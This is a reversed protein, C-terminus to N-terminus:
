KSEPDFHHSPRNGTRAHRFKAARYNRGNARFSRTDAKGGRHEPNRAPVVVRGGYRKVCRSRRQRSAPVRNGIDGGTESIATRIKAFAGEALWPLNAAARRLRSMPAWLIALLLLESLVLGITGLFINRRLANRIEAMADSIDAVTALYAQEREEFGALPFLRIEHERGNTGIYIPGRVADFLTKAEAAAHLIGGGCRASYASQNVCQGTSSRPREM